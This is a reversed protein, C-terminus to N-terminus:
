FILPLQFFYTTVSFFFLHYSFFNPQNKAIEIILPLKTLVYHNKHKLNRWKNGYCNYCTGYHVLFFGHCLHTKKKLLFMCLPYWLTGFFFRSIFAGKKSCFCVYYTGYHVLFFGHYLHVRKKAFVYMIPVMIYWFFVAIYICKKKLLFM